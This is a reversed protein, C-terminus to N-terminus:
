GPAAGRHPAGGEVDHELYVSGDGFAQKAERAAAAVAEAPRTTTSAVCAGAVAAPLPRSWCRSLRHGGRDDRHRGRPPDDAAAAGVHRARHPVGPPRPAARPWSTAWRSSPRPHPGVFVIGAAEAAEAFAAQESLFGYGPHIAQAGTSLAAEVIVRRRAPLEGHRAGARHRRRHDALRVHAGRTPTATSLSPRSGLEQCARMIRVAIEGRNAILLREFPADGRHDDPSDKRLSVPRRDSRSTGTSRRPNTDRKDDLIEFAPGRATADGLAPDCRRHLRTGGRRLPQRVAGRVGRGPAQAGRGPRRSTWSIAGSSSTSRAERRGHGRDRATPWAFNVDGRVHKTSMVDYAGGYAKRTIVTVKPM